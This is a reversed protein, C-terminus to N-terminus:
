SLALLVGGQQLRAGRCFYRARFELSIYQGDYLDLSVTTGM